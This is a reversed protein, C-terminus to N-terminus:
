ISERGKWGLVAGVFLAAPAFPDNVLIAHIVLGSAVALAVAAIV